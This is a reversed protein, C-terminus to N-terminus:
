AAEGDGEDGGTVGFLGGMTAESEERAAAAIAEVDAEESLIGNRVCEKLLTVLDIAHPSLNRLKILQEVVDRRSGLLKFESFVEIRLDEPLEVGLWTGAARYCQLLVNSAERVWAQIPAENKDDTSRQSTATTNASARLFPQLGLIEMEERIEEKSKRGQELGAGTTETFQLRAEPNKFANYAGHGLKLGKKVEEATLGTATLMILLAFRLAMRYDSATQWHEINKWALDMLPSTATFTGTRNTYFPFLPLGRGPWLYSGTNRLTYNGKENDNERWEEFRGERVEGAANVTKAQLVRIWNVEKDAYDGDSETRKEKWRAFVSIQEGTKADVVHRWGIMDDASIAVFYPRVGGTLEDAASQEGSTKPFDVLVFSVGNYVGSEFMWRGFTTLNSGSLDTNTRIPELRADLDGRITVERSFPRAVIRSATNTLAPFLFSRAVRVRYREHDEKPEQPLYDRAATRMARTGGRLAKIIARDAVGANYAAIPIAVDKSEAM